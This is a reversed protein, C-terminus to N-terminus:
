VFRLSWLRTMVRTTLRRSTMASTRTRNCALRHYIYQSYTASPSTKRRTNRNDGTQIMRGIRSVWWWGCAATVLLVFTRRRPVRWFCHKKSIPSCQTSLYKWKKKARKWVTFGTSELHWDSIVGRVQTHFHTIVHQKTLTYCAIWPPPSFHTDLTASLRNAPSISPVRHFGWEVVVRGFIVGLRM